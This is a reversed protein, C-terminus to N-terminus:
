AAAYADEIADPDTVPPAPDVYTASIPEPAPTYSDDSDDEPPGFSVAGVPEAPVVLLDPQANEFFTDQEPECSQAKRRSESYNKGRSRPSAATDSKKVSDSANESPVPAPQEVSPTDAAPQQEAANEAPTDSNEPQVPAAAKARTKREKPTSKEM